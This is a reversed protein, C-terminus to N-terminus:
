ARRGPAPGGGFEDRRRRLEAEDLGVLGLATRRRRHRGIVTLGAAAAGLAALAGPEVAGLERGARRRGLDALRGLAPALAPEDRDGRRRATM